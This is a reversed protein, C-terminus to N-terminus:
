SPMQTKDLSSSRGTRNHKRRQIKPQPFSKRSTKLNNEDITTRYIATIKTYRHSSTLEPDEKETKKAM